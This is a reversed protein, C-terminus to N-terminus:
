YVYTPELSIGVKAVVPFRQVVARRLVDAAAAAEGGEVKLDLLVFPHAASGVIRLDHYSSQGGLAPLTERLFADIEPYLPHQRNVPDVHVVTWARFRENLREEVAEAVEHGRVIDLADAVEVHVSIVHLGGYRHVILDHVADVGTVQLAETRIEELLLTSPAEGILPDLSARLLQWAAWAIIASVLLGGLGDVWSWGLRAAALAAIVIVTALVDSRHHWFDGILATSGIRNGLERAFRALWEKVVATAALLVLLWLSFEVARPERLREVSAKGFEWATLLLLLAVVLSAVNELRGHGFPHERDSPRAAQRFGWIVVGSSAVDGLSHFADAILALSGILVGPILKAVFVVLNVAVSVWGELLGYRTRVHPESVAEPQPVFTRVLWGGIV